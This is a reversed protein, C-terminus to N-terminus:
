EGEVQKRRVGCNRIFRPVDRHNYSGTHYLSPHWLIVDGPKGTSEVVRVPVGDIVAGEEMFRQNRDGQDPAEGTLEELWSHSKAFRHKLEKQSLGGCDPGLPKFMSRILRHSGEVLLTGGGEPQVDGYFSFVQLINMRDVHNEPNADWHWGRNIVTWMEEEAYPPSVLFAGWGRPVQWQDKGLLQDIAACLRPSGVDQYIPDQGKQNLGNWLAPWTDRDHRDIGHLAELHEWMFDQMRLAAEPDFAAELHVWGKGDFDVLQQDTLPPGTQLSISM